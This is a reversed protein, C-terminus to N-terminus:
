PNKASHQAAKLKETIEELPKLRKVEDWMAFMMLLGDVILFIEELNLVQNSFADQTAAFCGIISEGLVIITLM